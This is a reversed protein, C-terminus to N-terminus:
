MGSTGGTMQPGPGCLDPPMPPCGGFAPAVRCEQPVVVGFTPVLINVDATSKVVICLQITFM